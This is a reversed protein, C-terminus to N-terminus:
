FLQRAGVPLPLTDHAALPAFLKDTAEDLVDAVVIKNHGGIVRVGVRPSIERACPRRDRCFYRRTRSLAVFSGTPCGRGGRRFGREETYHARWTLRSAPM